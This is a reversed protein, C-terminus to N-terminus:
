CLNLFTDICFFSINQLGNVSYLFFNKSKKNYRCLELTNNENGCIAKMEYFNYINKKSM